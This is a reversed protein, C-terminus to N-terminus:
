DELLHLLSESGQEPPNGNKVLRSRLSERYPAQVKRRRTVISEGISYLRNKYRKFHEGEEDLVPHWIVHINKLSISFKFISDYSSEAWRYKSCMVTLLKCLLGFCNEVVVKDSSMSSNFRLQESSLFGRMAKKKRHIVRTFDVAGQYAKEM